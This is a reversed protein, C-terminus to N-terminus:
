SSNGLVDWVLNRALKYVHYYKSAAFGDSFINPSVPFLESGRVDEPRCHVDIRFVMDPSHLAMHLTKIV